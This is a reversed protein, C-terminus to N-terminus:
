KRRRMENAVDANGLAIEDYDMEVTKAEGLPVIPAPPIEDIIRDWIADLDEDSRGNDLDSSLDSTM